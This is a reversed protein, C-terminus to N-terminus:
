PFSHRRTTENHRTPAGEEGRSQAYNFGLNCAKDTFWSKESFRELTENANYEVEESIRSRTSIPSCAKQITTYTSQIGENLICNLNLLKDYNHLKM